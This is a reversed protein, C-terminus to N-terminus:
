PERAPPRDMVEEHGVKLMVVVLFDATHEHWGTGAEPGCNAKALQAIM